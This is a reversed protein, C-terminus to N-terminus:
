ISSMSGRTAQWPQEVQKRETIFEGGGEGMATDMQAILLNGM